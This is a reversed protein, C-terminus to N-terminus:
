NFFGIVTGGSNVICFGPFHGSSTASTDRYYTGGVWSANTKTAAPVSGPLSLTFSGTGLSPSTGLLMYVEVTCQTGIKKYRGHLVGGSGVTPSGGGAALTPTYATWEDDLDILLAGLDSEVGSLTTEATGLRDDIGGVTTEVAEALAQGLDAGDPPDDAEQFPWAYRATTDAM